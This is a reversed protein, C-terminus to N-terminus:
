PQVVVLTCDGSFDTVDLDIVYTGASPITLVTNLPVTWTAALSLYGTYVYYASSGFGYDYDARYSQLFQETKSESYSFTGSTDQADITLTGSDGFSDTTATSSTSSCDGWRGSSCGGWGSSSAEVTAFVMLPRDSTTTVTARACTGTGSGTEYWVDGRADLDAVDAEIDAIDADLDTELDALDVSVGDVLATIATLDISSISMEIGTLQALLDGHADQLAAIDGDNDGVEDALAALDAEVLGLLHELTAVADMAETIATTNEVIATANATIDGETATLDAEVDSVADANLAIDIQSESILTNAATLGLQAEELDDELAVVRDALAGGDDTSVDGVQSELVAVREALTVMDADAAKEECASLTLGISALFIPIIPNHTTM